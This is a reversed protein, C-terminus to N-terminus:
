KKENNRKKGGRKIDNEYKNRHFTCMAICNREHPDDEYDDDDYDYWMVNHM